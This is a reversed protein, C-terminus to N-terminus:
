LETLMKQYIGLLNEQFKLTRKLIDLPITPELDGIFHKAIERKTVYIHGALDLSAQALSALSDDTEKLDNILADITGSTEKLEAM